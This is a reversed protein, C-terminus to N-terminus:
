QGKHAEHCAKCDAAKKLAEAAGAKGDILDQTANKLAETKEKWSEEEGRPPTAKNLATYLELLEKKQDDTAKGEVVAKHIGAKSMAAKMVDKITVEDDLHAQSLGAISVTLGITAAMIMWKRM